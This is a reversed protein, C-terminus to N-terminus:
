GGFRSFGKRKKTKGVSALDDDGYARQREQGSRQFKEGKACDCPVVYDHFWGSGKIVCATRLCRAGDVCELVRWGVDECAPCAPQFKSPRKPWVARIVEEIGRIGDEQSVGESRAKLYDRMCELMKRVFRSELTAEFDRREKRAQKRLTHPDIEPEFDTTM